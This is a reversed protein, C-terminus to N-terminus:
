PKKTLGRLKAEPQLLILSEAQPFLCLMLLQNCPLFHKKLYYRLDELPKTIIVSRNPLNKVEVPAPVGSRETVLSM